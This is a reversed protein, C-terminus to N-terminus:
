LPVVPDDLQLKAAELLQNVTSAAPKGCIPLHPRASTFRRNGMVSWRHRQQDHERKPSKLNLLFGACPAPKSKQGIENVKCNPLARPSSSSSASLVASHVLRSRLRRQSQKLFSLRHLPLARKGRGCRPARDRPAPRATYLGPGLWRPLAHVRDSPWVRVM